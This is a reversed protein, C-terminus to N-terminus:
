CCLSGQLVWFTEKIVIFEYIFDITDTNGGPGPFMLDWLDFFDTPSLEWAHADGLGIKNMKNDFWLWM